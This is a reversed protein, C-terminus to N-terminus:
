WNDALGRMKADTILYKMVGILHGKEAEIIERLLENQGWIDAIAHYYLLTAKEFSFARLLADDKKKIKDVDKFAGKDGMFFESISAAALYQYKTDPEKAEPEPPVKALLSLFQGEHTVEDKALISFLENLEAIEKFRESLTRYFGAGLKETMVALEISKRLTVADLM